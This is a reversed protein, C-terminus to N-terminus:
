SFIVRAVSVRVELDQHSQMFRVIWEEPGNGSTSDPGISVAMLDETWDRFGHGSVKDASM